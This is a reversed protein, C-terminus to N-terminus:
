EWDGKEPKRIRIVSDELIKKSSINTTTSGRM